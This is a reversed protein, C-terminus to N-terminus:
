LQWGQAQEYRVFNVMFVANSFTGTTIARVYRRVTATGSASTLRGAGRGTFASFAGGTLSTFASNDASDQLTITISTGTFAMVHVYAAWGFSYSVPTAGLDAGTAPSTATTDTRLGNTLQSGWELGYGNGQANVNFTFAGSQERNGDYNIQKSIMSAAPSGILTGHLYTVVRDTTPLTKLVTHSGEASAASDTNFFTTATISGDRLLGIREFAYRKIGTVEQMAVPSALTASGADGSMDYQDIYLNDGLGSEKAM